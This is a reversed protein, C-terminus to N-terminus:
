SWNVEKRITAAANVVRDDKKPECFVMIEQEVLM